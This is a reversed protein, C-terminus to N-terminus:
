DELKLIYFKCKEEPLNGLVCELHHEYNSLVGKYYSEFETGNELKSKAEEIYSSFRKILKDQKAKTTIYSCHKYFDTGKFNYISLIQTGEKNEQLYYPWSIRITNPINRDDEDFCWKKILDIVVGISENYFRMFDFRPILELYERDKYKFCIDFCTFLDHYAFGIFAPVKGSIIWESDATLYASTDNPRMQHYAPCNANFFGIMDSFTKKFDIFKEYNTLDYLFEHNEVNSIKELLEEIRKDFDVFGIGLTEPHPQRYQKKEM